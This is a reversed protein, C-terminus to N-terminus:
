KVTITTKHVRFLASHWLLALCVTRESESQLEFGEFAVREESEGLATQARSPSGVQWRLGTVYGSCSRRSISTFFFFSQGSNM